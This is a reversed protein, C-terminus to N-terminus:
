LLIYCNNFGIFKTMQSSYNTSELEEPHFQYLIIDETEALINLPQHFLLITLLIIAGVISKILFNIKVNSHKKLVVGEEKPIIGQRIM